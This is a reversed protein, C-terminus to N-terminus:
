HLDKQIGIGPINGSRSITKQRLMELTSVERDTTRTLPDDAMATIKLPAPVYSSAVSAGLDTLGRKPDTAVRYLVAMGQIVPFSEYVRAQDKVIRAALKETDAKEKDTAYRLSDHYAGVGNLVVGAGGLALNPLWGLGPVYFSNDPIGSDRRLKAEGPDSPGPGTLFGKAAYDGAWLILGAGVAQRALQTKLPQKTDVLSGVGPLLTAGRKHIRYVTSFFPVIQSGLFDHIQRSMPDGSTSPTSGGRFLSGLKAEFPGTQDKYTLRQAFERGQEAIRAAEETTPNNRLRLIEAVQQDPRM